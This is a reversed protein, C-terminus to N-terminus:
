PSHVLKRLSHGRSCHFKLVPHGQLIGADGGLLELVLKNLGGLDM